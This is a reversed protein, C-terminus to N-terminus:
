ERRSKKSLIHLKIKFWNKNREKKRMHMAKEEKVNEISWEM